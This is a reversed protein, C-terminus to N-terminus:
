YVYRLISGCYEKSIIRFDHNALIMFRIGDSKKTFWSEGIEEYFEFPTELFSEDLRAERLFKHIDDRNNSVIKSNKYFKALLNILSREGINRLYSPSVESEEIVIIRKLDKWLSSITDIDSTSQNYSKPDSNQIKRLFIDVEKVVLNSTLIRMNEVHRINYEIASKPLTKLLNSLVDTDVLRQRTTAM